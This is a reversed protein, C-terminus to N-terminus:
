DVWWEACADTVIDRGKLLGDACNYVYHSEAHARKVIPIGLDMRFYNHTTSMLSKASVFPSIPVQIVDRMQYPVPVATLQKAIIIDVSGSFCM